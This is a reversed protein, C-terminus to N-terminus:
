KIVELIPKNNKGEFFLVRVGAEQFLNVDLYNRGSPGSIYTDAQYKRCIDVLKETASLGPTLEDYFIPTDIGLELCIAQIVSSNTKSLSESFNGDFRELSQRGIKTKILKWDSLHNTYRKDRILDTLSGQNVSMTMWKEHWKFRNQFQHRTFQVNELLIFKDVASIKEFFPNWPFFNPQHCSIIM